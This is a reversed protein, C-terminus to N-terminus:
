VLYMPESMPSRIQVGNLWDHRSRMYPFGM